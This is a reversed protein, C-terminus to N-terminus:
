RAREFLVALTRAAEPMRPGSRNFASAPVRHVNGTRVARLDRWGAVKALQTRADYAQERSIIIVDPDRRILEELSIETYKQAIDGFINEGGAIRILEDIFTGPGVITPPTVSVAYAVRVRRDGELSAHISDLTGRMSSVLSDAASPANFLIGLNRIAAYTNAITDLAAGYVPIGLSTIKDVLSRTGRDPWSIVLDPKQAALWEISPTLGGGVSPLHALTSDTDYDTRAILREHQGLAVILDTITPLLSVVRTAPRELRVSRGADDTVVISSATEPQPKRECGAILVSVAVLMTVARM